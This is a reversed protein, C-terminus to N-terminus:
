ISLLVLLIKIINKVEKYIHLEELVSNLYINNPINLM